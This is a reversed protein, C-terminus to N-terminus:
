AQNGAQRVCRACTYLTFRHRWRGFWERVALNFIWFYTGNRIIVIDGRMVCTKNSICSCNHGSYVRSYTRWILFFTMLATRFRHVRHIHAPGNIYSTFASRIFLWFSNVGTCCTLQSCYLLTEWRRCMESRVCQRWTSSVARKGVGSLVLKVFLVRTTGFIINGYYVVSLSM